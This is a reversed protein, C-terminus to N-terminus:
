EAVTSREQVWRLDGYGPPSPPVSPDAGQNNGPGWHLVTKDRWKKIEAHGDAFALGGAGNHYSAPGDVWNFSPIVAVVFWGDNISQDNEDLTVWCKAPPILGGIHSQKRFIRGNASLGQSMPTAAPNMWANMSMSRVHPTKDAPCKYVELSKVYPWLLGRQILTVDTAQAAQSVDGFCWDPDNPNATGATPCIGDDYDGSYLHWSLMLQRSNNMCKIGAAKAKAKSLAPLLLAALIAIIAIVVLLEILTFGSRRSFITHVKV